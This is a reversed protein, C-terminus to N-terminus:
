TCYQPREITDFHRIRSWYCNKVTQDSIITITRHVFRLERFLM